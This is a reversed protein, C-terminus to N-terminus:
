QDDKGPAATALVHRLACHDPLGDALASEINAMHGSQAARLRRGSPSPLHATKM